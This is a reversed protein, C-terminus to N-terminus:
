LSSSLTASLESQKLVNVPASGDILSFISEVMSAKSTAPLM